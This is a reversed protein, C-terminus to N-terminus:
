NEREFTLLIITIIRLVAQFESLTLLPFDEKISNPIVELSELRNSIDSLLIKKNKVKLGYIYKKRWKEYVKGYQIHKVANLNDGTESFSNLFIEFFEKTISKSDVERLDKESLEFLKEKFKEEAFM